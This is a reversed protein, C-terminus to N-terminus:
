DPSFKVTVVIEKMWEVSIGSNSMANEPNSILSPNKM